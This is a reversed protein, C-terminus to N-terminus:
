GSTVSLDKHTTHRWQSLARGGSNCFAPYTKRTSILVSMAGFLSVKPHIPVYDLQVYIYIYTHTHMKKLLYEVTSLTPNKKTLMYTRYNVYLITKQIDLLKM